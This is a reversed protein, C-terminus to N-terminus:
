WEAGERQKGFPLPRLSKSLFTFSKAAVSKEGTRTRFVEGAVGLHDGLDLWDLREYAESGISDLRFYIQIRGTEDEIHLFTAKGITRVGVIRGAVVVRAGEPCVSDDHFRSALHTREFREIAFPDIGAARMAELKQRRVQALEDQGEVEVGRK